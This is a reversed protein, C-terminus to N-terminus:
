FFPLFTESIIASVKGLVIIRATEAIVMAMINPIKKPINDATYLSVRKSRIIDITLVRPILTGEKKEAIKNAQNKPNTNCLYV